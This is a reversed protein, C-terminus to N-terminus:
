LRLQLSCLLLYFLESLFYVFQLFITLIIREHTNELSDVFFLQIGNVTYICYQFASMIQMANGM